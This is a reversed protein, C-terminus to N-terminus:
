RPGPLEPPPALCDLVLTVDVVRADPPTSVVLDPSECDPFYHPHIAYVTISPQDLPLDQLEVASGSGGDIGYAGGGRVNVGVLSAPSGDRWLVKAKMTWGTDFRIDRSSARVYDQLSIRSELRRDGADGAVFLVADRTTAPPIEVSFTGLSGTRDSALVPESGEAPDLVMVAFDRLPQDGAKRLVRGSVREPWIVDFLSRAGDSSPRPLDPQPM